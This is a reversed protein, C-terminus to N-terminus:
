TRAPELQSIHKNYVELLAQNPHMDAYVHPEWSIDVTCGTATAAGKFCGNIKDILVNLDKKLGSRAILVLEALDPIINPYVGGKSIITHLRSSPKIQQRLASLGNYAQVAADLANVGDWPFVSAHASKGHYTVKCMCSSALLIENQNVHSPHCMMAVDADNFAGADILVQKGCGGEEAPTGLITVKGTPKGYKELAAKVGIGAAVGLQAILNHGCGHGIEPLADYECIIFVNPAITN